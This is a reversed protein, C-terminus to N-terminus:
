ILGILTTYASDPIGLWFGPSKFNQAGNIIDPTPPNFLTWAPCTSQKWNMYITIDNWNLLKKKWQIQFFFKLKSSTKVIWLGCVVNKFVETVYLFKTSWFQFSKYQIGRIVRIRITFLGATKSGIHIRENMALWFKSIERSRILQETELISM